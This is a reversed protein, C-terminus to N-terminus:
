PQIREKIHRYTLRYKEAISMAYALGDAAKRIVKFTRQTPNEPVVTSVMSVTKESLTSLEEIFTVYVCLCDLRIIEEIVQKGLFIADKLATSTFIENMIIISNSTAQDLIDRTRVLDDHLKGRLNKINEENEFHTFLRDFLFLRAERGPVPLGLSALYHLQGFTRSFTTKGGQNPGSVVVIREPGDLYFDNCVIRVKDKVLKTALAADFGERSLVGKSTDSVEPYCFNLGARRLTGIYELYAVYFQVERDFATITADAFFAHQASFEDLRGFTEPNLLAVCNLIQAEVHNMDESERFRVGYDKVRGQRFKQFTALVESSYDAESEYARVKVTRGNMLVCYQIATLDTKLRSAETRLTQFDSSEGYGKLYDRFATLGRSTIDAGELDQSLSAVAECYIAVADLFWGEKHFKYYRKGAQSVHERVSRMRKEFSKIHKFTAENELDRMVEHRYAVDVVGSLPLYFFPTLDYEEKGTT